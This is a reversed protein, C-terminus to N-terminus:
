KCSVSESPSVDWEGPKGDPNTPDFKLTSLSNLEDCLRKAAEVDGRKRAENIQRALMPKRSEFDNMEAAMLFDGHTEALRRLVEYAVEEDLLPILLADVARPGERPRPLQLVGTARLIARKESVKLRLFTSADKIEQAKPVTKAARQRSLSNEKEQRKQEEKWLKAELESSFYPANLQMRYSVPNQELLGDMCSSEYLNSSMLIPIDTAFAIGILEDMSCKVLQAEDSGRVANIAKYNSATLKWRHAVGAKAVLIAAGLTFSYESQKDALEILLGRIKLDSYKELSSVLGHYPSVCSGKLRLAEYIEKRASNKGAWQFVQLLNDFLGSNRDTILQGSWTKYVNSRSDASKMASAVASDIEDNVAIPLLGKAICKGDVRQQIVMKEPGLFFASVKDTYKNGTKYIGSCPLPKLNRFERPKTEVSIMVLCGSRRLFANSSM